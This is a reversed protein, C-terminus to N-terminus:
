ICHKAILFNYHVQLNPDEAELMELADEGLHTETLLRTTKAGQQVIDFGYEVFGSIEDCLRDAEEMIFMMAANTEQELMGPAIGAMISEALSRRRGHPQRGVSDGRQSIRETAKRDYHSTQTGKDALTVMRAERVTVYPAKEERCEGVVLDRTKRKSGGGKDEKKKQPKKTVKDEEETNDDEKKDEEDEKKDEKKVKAAQKRKRPSKAQRPKSKKAPVALKSVKTSKEKIEEEGSDTDQETSDQPPTDVTEVSVKISSKGASKLREEKVESEALGLESKVNVIIEKKSSTLQARLKNIEDKLREIDQEKTKLEDENDVLQAQYSPCKPCEKVVEVKLPDVPANPQQETSSAVTPDQKCVETASPLSALKKQLEKNEEELRFVMKRADRVQAQLIDTTAMDEGGVRGEDAPETLDIEAGDFKMKDGVDKKESMVKRIYQKCQKLEHQKTKLEGEVLLKDNNLRTKDMELSRVTKEQKSLDRKLNDIYETQTNLTMLIRNLERELTEKDLNGEHRVMKLMDVMEGAVLKWQQTEDKRISSRRHFIDKRQQVAMKKYMQLERELQRKEMELEETAEGKKSLDIIKKNMAKLKDTTERVNQFTDQIARQAGEMDVSQHEKKTMKEIEDLVEEEDVDLSDQLSNLLEERERCLFKYDTLLSEMAIQGSLHEQMATYGQQDTDDYMADYDRLLKSIRDTIGSFEQGFYNSKQEGIGVAHVALPLDEEFTSYEARRDDDKGAVDEPSFLDRRWSAEYESEKPDKFLQTAQFDLDKIPLKKKRKKGQGKGQRQMAFEYRRSM